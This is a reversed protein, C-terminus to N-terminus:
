RSVGRADRVEPRPSPKWRWVLRGAGESADLPEVVLEVPAGVHLDAVGFGSAVQGLVVLREEALEVAAIAFPEYPDTPSVYPAPPQYRADTYSWVTGARSLRVTELESSSCAPNPCWSGTPPFVYTGCSPCKQGLLAPEGELTLWGEVAPVGTTM